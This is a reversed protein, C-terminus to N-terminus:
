QQENTSRINNDKANEAVINVEKNCLFSYFDDLGIPQLSTRISIKFAQYQSPLGNLTFLIVDEATLPSSSAAIADCKGKINSLYQIM